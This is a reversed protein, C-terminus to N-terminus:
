DQPDGVVIGLVCLKVETNLLFQTDVVEVDMWDYKVADVPEVLKVGRQSLHDAKFHNNLTTWSVINSMGQIDLHDSVKDVNPEGKNTILYLQIFDAACERVQKIVQIDEQILIPPPMPVEIPVDRKCDDLLLAEFSDLSSAGEDFTNRFAMKSDFDDSLPIVKQGIHEYTPSPLHSNSSVGMLVIFPARSESIHVLNVISDDDKGLFPFRHLYFSSNLLISPYTLNIFHLM